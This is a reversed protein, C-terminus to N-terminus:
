LLVHYIWKARENRVRQDVHHSGIQEFAFFELDM